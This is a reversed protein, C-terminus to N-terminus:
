RTAFAITSGIVAHSLLRKPRFRNRMTHMTRNVRADAPQPAAVVRPCAPADRPDDLARAAARELGDGLGDEHLAKRRGLPPTAIAAKAIPTITAGMMPGVSPPQIM